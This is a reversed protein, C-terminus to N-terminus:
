VTKKKIEKFVFYGKIQKYKDITSQPIELDIFLKDYNISKTEIWEYKLGAEIFLTNGGDTCDKLKEMVIKEDKKKEKIKNRIDILQNAYENSEKDSKELFEKETLTPEILNIICDYFEKEKEILKEIYQQDRKIPIIILEQNPRFAVFKCEDLGSVMLQHQIQDFYYNAILGQVAQDYSSVGCKIEIIYRQSKDYGDLSAMAWDETDHLGCVPQFNTNNQKNFLDRAIPELMRGEKMKANAAMEKDLGVKERWLTSKTKQKNTENIIAADTATIKTKRFEKWKPLGQELDLIKM